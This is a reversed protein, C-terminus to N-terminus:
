IARRLEANKSQNVDSLDVGLNRARRKLKANTLGILDNYEDATPHNARAHIGSCKPNALDCNYTKVIELMGESNLLYESKLDTENQADIVLRDPLESFVCAIKVIADGSRYVCVDDRDPARRNEFFIDLADFISSKGADNKGVLVVLDDLDVITEDRYCRFNTIKIQVLKM